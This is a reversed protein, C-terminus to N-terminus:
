QTSAELRAVPNLGNEITKVAALIEKGFEDRASYSGYLETRWEKLLTRIEPDSQDVDDRAYEALGEIAAAVRHRAKFLTEVAHDIEQDGIVARVRIQADRLAKFLDNYNAVREYRKQYGYFRDGAKDKPISDFPNRIDRLADDVNHALALLEEAVQSRRLERASRRNADLTSKAGFLGVIVAIAGVAAAIANIWDPITAESM